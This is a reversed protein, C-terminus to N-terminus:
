KTIKAQIKYMDTYNGEGIKNEQTLNIIYANEGTLPASARSGM